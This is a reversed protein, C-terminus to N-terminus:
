AIKRTADLVDNLGVQEGDAKWWRTECRDCSHLTLQRQNVAMSITVLNAINCLPCTMVVRNGKIPDATTATTTTTAAGHEL